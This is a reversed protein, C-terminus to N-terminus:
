QNPNPLSTPLAQCPGGPASIIIRANRPRLIIIAVLTSTDQNSHTAANTSDVTHVRRRFGAYRSGAWWACGLQSQFLGIGGADGTGLGWNESGLGRGGAEGGWLGLRLEAREGLRWAADGGRGTARDDGMGKSGRALEGAGAPPRSGSRARALPRQTFHIPPALL